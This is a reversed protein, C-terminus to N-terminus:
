FYAFKDSNITKKKYISSKNNWWISFAYFAYIYFTIVVYYEMRKGYLLAHGAVFDVINNYILLKTERSIQRLDNVLEHTYITYRFHCISIMLRSLYFGIIVGFIYTGFITHYKIILFEHFCTCFFLSDHINFNCYRPESCASCIRTNAFDHSIKM